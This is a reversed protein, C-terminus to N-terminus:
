VLSRVHERIARYVQEQSWNFREKFVKDITNPWWDEHIPAQTGPPGQVDPAYLANNGIIQGVTFLGGVGVHKWRRGLNGTRRYSSDPRQPPYTALDLVYAAGIKSFTPRLFNPNKLAALAANVKEEGELEVEFDNM